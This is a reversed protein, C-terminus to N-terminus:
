EDSSEFICHSLKKALEKRSYKMSNQDIGSDMTRYTKLWQFLAESNEHNFINANSINRLIAALDGDEPGLALVPRGSALYEFIKGTLIGKANPAKNVVVLLVDSATLMSHLRDHDMYDFWVVQDKWKKNQISEGVLPDIRGVLQIRWKAAKEPDTHWLSDMATWLTDPNRSKGMTGAYTITYADIKKSPASMDETDFGNHIVTTKQAGMREFDEAMTDGIVIVNDANQLVRKELAHHRKNAFSTLALDKFYDIDTWPDRFDALWHINPMAKKVRLGALHCSHPPGTTILTDIREKQIVKVAARAAPRIWFMRADPIFLNSRVWFSLKSKWNKREMNQIFSARTATKPDTGTLLSFIRYPELIPVRYLSVEKPIDKLLSEDVDPYQAGDPVIIHPEIGFSPLYKVFKLWRQVGSGGSPPWYYTIILVKKM